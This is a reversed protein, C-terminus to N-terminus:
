SSVKQCWEKWINRFAEELGQTFVLPNTIPAATLTQRLSRRVEALHQLNNAM